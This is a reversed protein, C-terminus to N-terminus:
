VGASREERLAATIEPAATVGKVVYALAGSRVAQSAVGEDALGSLVLVPANGVLALARGLLELGFGDPIDLDLLLADFAGEGWQRAADAFTEAHTVEWGVGEAELCETLLFADPFHDEVLLLRRM